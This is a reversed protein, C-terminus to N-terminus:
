FMVEFNVGYIWVEHGDVLDLNVAPVVGHRSGVHFVNAAGHGEEATAPLTWFATTIACVVVSFIGFRHM